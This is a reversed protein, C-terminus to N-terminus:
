AAAVREARQRWVPRGGGADRQYAFTFDNLGESFDGLAAESIEFADFGARILLHLQDRLVEGRARIEGVFGYRERLIRAQSYARGDLFSSFSLVIAAVGNLTRDIERVDFDPPLVLAVPDDAKVTNDRWEAYESAYELSPDCRELAGSNLRLTPM